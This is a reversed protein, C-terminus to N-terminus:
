SFPLLDVFCLFSKKHERNNLKKDVEIHGEGGGGGIRRGMINNKYYRPIEM